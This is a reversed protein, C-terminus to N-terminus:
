NVETAETSSEPHVKTRYKNRLRALGPSPEGNIAGASRLEDYMVEALLEYGEPNLHAFDWQLKGRDLDSFSKEADILLLGRTKAYERILDNFRDLAAAAEVPDLGHRIMWWVSGRGDKFEAEPGYPWRGVLTCVALHVKSDRKRFETIMHDMSRLYFQYNAVPAGKYQARATSRRREMKRVVYDYWASALAVTKLPSSQVFLRASGYKRDFHSDVPPSSFPDYLQFDNWGVYLLVVDPRYPSVKKEAWLAVQDSSWGSVGGNIMEVNAYGQGYERVLRRLYIPYNATDVQHGQTTSEGLAAFRITESSKILPVTERQPFGDANIYHGGRSFLPKLVYGFTGDAQKMFNVADNRLAQEGAAKRIVFAQEELRWWVLTTIGELLGVLAVLTVVSFLMKRGTSM